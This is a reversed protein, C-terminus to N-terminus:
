SWFMYRNKENTTASEKMENWKLKTANKNKHTWKRRTWDKTEKNMKLMILKSQTHLERRREIRWNSTHLCIICPYKQTMIAHITPVPTNTATQPLGDCWREDYLARKSQKTLKNQKVKCSTNIFVNMLVGRTLRKKLRETTGNKWVCKNQSCKIRENAFQNITPLM